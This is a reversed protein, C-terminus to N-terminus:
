QDIYEFVKVVRVVGPVQRAVNAALDGQKRSVIGMLYVTGSSTIVKIQTARLHAKLLMHAKVKTTIWTDNAHAIDSSAGSIQVENYIHKIHPITHIVHEAQQRLANSQAQGLMLVIGNFCTITIHSTKALRSNNDIRAQATLTINSDTTQQNFSRKDYIIVGVASAGALVAVPVCANLLCLSYISLLLLSLRKM